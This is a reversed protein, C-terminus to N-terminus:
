FAYKKIEKGKVDYIGFNFWSKTKSDETIQCSSGASYFSQADSPLLAKPYHYFGCLSGSFGGANNMVIDGSAPKPVGSLVCSKVLRGNIYIDLNRDFATLSVTFWSQLPIDPVECVFVDDTGSHGAPSPETKSGGEGTPFISISFKMTNETPHLTINPNMIAPNSSDNRSLVHKEKGFNYNWDKVYMWYQMGYDGKDSVLATGSPISSAITADKAVPLQNGSGGASFFSTLKNWFTPQQKPVTKVKRNTFLERNAASIDIVENPDNITATTPAPDSSFKYIIQNVGGTAGPLPSGELSNLGGPSIHIADGKVQSNMAATVDKGGIQASIIQLSDQLKPQIDQWYYIGAVVGGLVALVVIVMIIWKATAWAGSAANAATSAAVSQAEALSVSATTFTPKSPAAGM